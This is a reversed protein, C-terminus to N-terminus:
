RIEVTDQKERYSEYKRSMTRMYFLQYLVSMFGFLLGVTAAYTPNVPIWGIVSLLYATIGSSVTIIAIM